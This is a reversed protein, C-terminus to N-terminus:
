NSFGRKFRSTSDQSLSVYEEYGSPFFFICFVIDASPKLSKGNGSTLEEYDTVLSEFIKKLNSATLYAYWVEKNQTKHLQQKSRKGSSSGYVVDAEEYDEVIKFGGVM